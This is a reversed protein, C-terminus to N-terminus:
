RALGMPKGRRLNWLQDLHRAMPKFLGYVLRQDPYSTFGDAHGQKEHDNYFRKPYRANAWSARGAQHLPFYYLRVIASIRNLFQTSKPDARYCKIRKLCGILKLLDHGQRRLKRDVTQRLGLSIYSTHSVQRCSPFQCLWMGKLFVEAGAQFVSYPLFCQLPEGQQGGMLQVYGTVHASRLIDL